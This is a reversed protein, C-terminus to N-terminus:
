YRNHIRATIAAVLDWYFVMANLTGESVTMDLIGVLFVFVIGLVAFLLILGLMKLISQPDQCNNCGSSGLVNSRNGKCAGCLVGTRHHACQSDLFDTENVHISIDKRVCYDFPCFTSYISSNKLEGIWWTSNKSRYISNMTINCTARLSQM